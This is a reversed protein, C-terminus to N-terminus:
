LEVFQPKGKEFVTYYKYGINKLYDPMINFAYCLHEPKHADSGITLIEGGLELYRKLIESKPHPYALGKNLGATNLEIGKGSSIITKLLEDLIDTYDYYSYDTGKARREPAYRIVYDIHGCVNFGQFLRINEVTAEFYRHMGEKFTHKEWYDPMYPDVKDVVHTSGIVFDFPYQKVLANTLDTIHPQLGLEVGMLVDIRDKYRERLDCVKRSYAEPDFMFDLDSVPPYDYDMHDTFCIKKLGLQLAKEIMAEMPAQSDSSFESHVHYDATIM